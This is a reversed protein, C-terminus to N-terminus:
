FFYLSIVKLTKGQEASHNQLQKLQNTLGLIAEEDETQSSARQEGAQHQSNALEQLKM